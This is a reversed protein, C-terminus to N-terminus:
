HLAYRSRKLVHEQYAADLEVFYASWGWIRVVLRPYKEPHARADLLMEANISNLQIQHGGMDIYAKIFKAFKEISDDTEWMSSSFELTLPGGNMVRALDPKTMSQIVSLPGGIKAFLSPSFNAPLPEGKRRGDPSAGIEDAHWLYYMASGTGARYRGGRCNKKDKLADAFGDLLFCLYKDAADDNQGVKPIEYRLTHLLEDFGSFDADVAAILQAATVSKTEYVLREIACLSDAANAAGTGHLGFNNYKGGKDVPFGMCVNMFPSPVFWINKLKDAIRDCEKNIEATVRSKFEEMTQCSPLDNKLCTDIVRNFSLADINVIDAATKPVIIEWCAAVAYEIAESKDYGWAELAPLAVDDNTYQPFGLGIRTLESGLKFVRLPTNKNARINIKPDILRLSGSAKLCLESLENFMQAGNLDTGGLVMSQGNDGQQVGPYLDNDRNCALFFEEILDYAQAKTLAGSAIDRRYYPYMYQDFRGLTVHYSGELWLSFHIIRLFQLAEALNTAGYAPVRRLTNEVFANGTKKAEERYREALKLITDIAHREYVDASDRLASLGVRLVREYDPLLNSIYGRECIHRGRRIKQWEDATFIDPINKVTRLYAIKEDALVVPTELATLYEFREAMRQEPSLARDKYNEAVEAAAKRYKHHEKNLIFSKLTHQNPGGGM